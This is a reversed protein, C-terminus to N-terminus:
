SSRAWLVGEDLTVDDVSEGPRHKGRNPNSGADIWLHGATRVKRVREESWGRREAGPLADEDTLTPQGQAVKRYRQIYEASVRNLPTAKRWVSDFWGAVELCADRMTREMANRAEIVVTICGVESGSTLGNRSLNGSGAMVAVSDPGRLVLVKPHWPRRPTCGQREVVFAGDPVRVASKPVAALLDFARPESRCWDMGVLWQKRSSAYKPMEEELRGTLLSVGVSSGYAFAGSISDFTGAKTAMDVLGLYEHDPQSVYRHILM